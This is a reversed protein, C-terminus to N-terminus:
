GKINLYTNKLGQNNRNLIIYLSPLKSILKQKFSRNKNSQYELEYFRATLNDLQGSLVGLDRTEKRISEIEKITDILIEKKM